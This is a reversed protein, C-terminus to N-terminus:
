GVYLTTVVGDVGVSYSWGEGPQPNAAHVVVHGGECSCVTVDQKAIMAMLVFGIVEDRQAKPMVVVNSM